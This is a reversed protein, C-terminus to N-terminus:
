STVQSLTLRACACILKAGETLIVHYVDEVIFYLRSVWNLTAM